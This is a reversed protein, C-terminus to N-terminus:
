TVPVCSDDKWGNQANSRPCDRRVFEQAFGLQRSAIEFLGSLIEQGDHMVVERRTTRGGARQHFEMPGRPHAFLWCRPESCIHIEM